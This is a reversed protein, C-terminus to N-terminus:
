KAEVLTAADVFVDMQEGVYAPEAHGEMAYVVQLVRTDIRQGAVALNQKPRVYPEFRIFKLPIAAKTDGRRYGKASAGAQIRGALEEDIEVRVHLTRTDGLRIYPTTVSGSAAFEGPRVDVSLIQGDIPARVTLRDKTTRAQVLQAEIEGIRTKSLAAGFKRRNFDDRAVARSDGVTKVIEYQAAADDAQIKASALAAELVQIQADIDREDLTFLPDNAAVMDGTKVHVQRVVGALETGISIIESQPEIVGIGAVSQNYSSQPPPIVPVKDPVEARGLVSVWAFTLGIAAIIPLKWNKLPEWMKKM